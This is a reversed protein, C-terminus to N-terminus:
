AAAIATLPYFNSLDTYSVAAAFTGDGHNLLVSLLNPVGPGSVFANGVALDLSGDGDLDALALATPAPGAAYDVAPAFTGGGQNILVSAQQDGHCAVVLDPKGDGNLDGAAVASPSKGVAVAIAPAFTGGGQDLLVGVTDDGANAVALDPKGDGNL